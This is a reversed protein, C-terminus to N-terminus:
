GATGMLEGLDRDRRETRKKLRAVRMNVQAVAAQMDKLNRREKENRWITSRYIHFAMSMGTFVCALFLRLTTSEILILLSIYVGALLVEFVIGRIDHDSGM